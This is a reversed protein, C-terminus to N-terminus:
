NFSKTIQLWGEKIEKGDIVVSGEKKYTQIEERTLNALREKFQKSYDKKLAKGLEESNPITHYDIYENENLSFEVELCNLEEKIYNQVTELMEVTEKNEEVICVRQLPTKLSRNKQDRIKRGLTVVSQMHSVMSEIREDILKEQFVPM